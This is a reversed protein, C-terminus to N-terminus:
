LSPRHLLRRHFEGKRKVRRLKVVWWSLGPDEPWRRAVNRHGHREKFATLAALMLNWDPRFASRKRLAWRFGLEELCRIREEALKGAKKRLRIHNVWRGLPRNPPYHAPVNCHGHEKKFRKLDELRQAWASPPVSRICRKPPRKGAGQKAALKATRKM